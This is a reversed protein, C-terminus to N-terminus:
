LGLRKVNELVHDASKKLQWLEDAGLKLEIIKEVDNAGLGDSYDHRLM